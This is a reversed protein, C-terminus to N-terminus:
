KLHGEWELFHEEADKYKIKLFYYNDDDPKKSFEICMPNAIQSMESYSPRLYIILDLNAGLTFVHINYDYYEYSDVPFWIEINNSIRGESRLTIMYKEQLGFREELITPLQKAITGSNLTYTKGDYYVKGLGNNTSEVDKKCGCLITSFLIFLISFKKM